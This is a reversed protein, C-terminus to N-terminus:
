SEVILFHPHAIALNLDAIMFIELESTDNINIPKPYLCIIGRYKMSSM